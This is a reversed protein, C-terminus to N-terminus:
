AAPGPRQLDGGPQQQREVRQEHAELERLYDYLRQLNGVTPNRVRGRAVPNWWHVSVGAAECIQRTRGIRRAMMARVAGLLDIEPYQTDM